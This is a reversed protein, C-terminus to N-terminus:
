NYNSEIVRLHRLFHFLMVRAAEFNRELKMIEDITKSDSDLAAELENALKFYEAFLEDGDSRNKEAILSLSLFQEQLMKVSQIESLQSKSAM